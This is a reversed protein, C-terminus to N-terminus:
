RVSGTTDASAAAALEPARDYGADTPVIEGRRGTVERHALEQRVLPIIHRTYDLADNFNDYGRISILDAGLDVYDLIAAAVTEPTGVLATSAGGANTAIAPATWLARDHLDGARAAALLRQSGVNPPPAKLNQRLGPTRAVGANTRLADLVRAAKEWALEETAAIIPRFTVWIRPRDTRGALRAQEGVADIQEKTERLPEGWLGFIDGLAGGVRYAEASSGGVSVPITGNTPRVVSVFDEFSYYTGAHDFPTTSSWAKRLIEIYEAQRLYRESKSLRDGERAQEQDSGGAIFHVVVRGGSLQDITALQKAAVTPYMTNPRLAIIPKIHETFQTLAAAVTFPDHGASHYPVLTYDFGGEDLLRAYRKLYSPDLGSLRLQNLENSPNVNIASIFEVTM